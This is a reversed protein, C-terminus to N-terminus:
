VTLKLKSPIGNKINEIHENINCIENFRAGNQIRKLAIDEKIQIEEGKAIAKTAEEKDMVVVDDRDAFIIEGPNVTVGGCQV